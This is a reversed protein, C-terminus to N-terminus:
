AMVIRRQTTQYPDSESKLLHIAAVIHTKFAQSQSFTYQHKYVIIRQYCLMNLGENNYTSSARGGMICLSKRLIPTLNCLISNNFLFAQRNGDPLHQFIYFRVLSFTASRVLKKYPIIFVDLVNVCKINKNNDKNLQSIDGGYM